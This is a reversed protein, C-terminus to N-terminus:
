RAKEPSWGIGHQVITSVVTWRPFGWTTRVEPSLKLWRNSKPDLWDLLM